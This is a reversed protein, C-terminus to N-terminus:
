PSGTSSQVELIGLMDAVLCLGRNTPRSAANTRSAGDISAAAAPSAVVTSM